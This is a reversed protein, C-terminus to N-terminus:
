YVSSIKMIDAEFTERTKAKNKLKNRYTYITNVSYNLIQAIRSSDDIGLRMFALIRLDTNLKEDEQLLIQEDDRMLANVGVVFDPYIHLFANDFVEYFEKSQEEVFKGSKTIKYLDDVKGTAIKRNVMKSFQNLKDMYISCLSLFQSIYLEKVKNAARLHQQLLTMRKMEKRLFLLAVVLLLLLVILGGIFAYMINQWSSVEARHASEIIPLSEASQVMRMLAHCKVANDLAVSLCTHARAVDGRRFLREGLEQLSMVELTASKIDAIASLALYYMFDNEEGQEQAIDSIIHAARAYMNSDDSVSNLLDSLIIRARSYERNVFYCEGQNLKYKPSTKDLLAILNIQAEMSRKNWKDYIEPYNMYFAAIYSYMQRGADYYLELAPESLQEPDISEYESVAEHIFGVLPLYTVKQIKFVMALSDEGLETAKDCGKIFYYLASDTNFATYEEALRMTTSFWASDNANRRLSINRLSDIRVQRADTYIDRKALEADLREIVKSVQSDTVTLAGANLIGILIIFLGLIYKKM